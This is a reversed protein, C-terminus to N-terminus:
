LTLLFTVLLLRVRKLFIRKFSFFSYNKLSHVFSDVASVQGSWLWGSDSNSFISKARSLGAKSLRVRFILPIFWIYHLFRKMFYNKPSLKFNGLTSSLLIILLIFIKIWGPLFILFATSELLWSIGIGGTCSLVLLVLISIKIRQRIECLNFIPESRSSGLFINVSLKISYIVTLGTAIIALFFILLNPGRIIFVELILDKSFFGSIFPIGCLRLNAVLFIRAAYPLRTLRGGLIRLDQYDKLSHIIAGACMFLMAKFYAHSILHFFALSPLGLGLTIFIIGLQSLTSLAIVKKMDLEGVARLGAIIITLLGLRTLIWLFSASSLLYNLRILLYVGATVLTSSHVLSSVPTPAAMAAPLWSSFPLQASKTSAVLVLLFLLLGSTGETNFRIYYYSWRGMNAVLGIILLLGVDGLRNTLATIIGAGYSKARQFYIVLLYSTVGLGDWGLLIRVFNPSLILIWMRIVFSIVLFIFRSYHQDINIYSGSYLFVRASIVSVTRIFFLSVWDLVLLLPLKISTCLDVQWELIVELSSLIRLSLIAAM